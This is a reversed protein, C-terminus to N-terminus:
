VLVRLQNIHSANAMFMALRDMGLAAGACPPIGYDIAQLFRTAEPYPKGGNSRRIADFEAFRQRQILPDILEGYANALEMGNLYLEWRESVNPNSPSLRAFAAAEAPYDCLFLPCQNGLNPEVQTVLIEDFTGNRLAEFADADAYKRFADAVSIAELRSFDYDNRTQLTHAVHQIMRFTFQMIDRDSDGVGYWELLTFEPQHKRGVEGERFCSGIQYIKEYGAALMIKMQLEPSPRLFGGSLVAPAEIYAEPAPADVCVATEVELYHNQAFFDRVASFLRGRLELFPKQEHLHRLFDPTM